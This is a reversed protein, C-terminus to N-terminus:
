VPRVQSLLWTIGEKTKETARASSSLMPFISSAAHPLGPFVDLKTPVGCEERLQHEYILGEDRLPDMGCLQLYTPPQRKHGSPWLLPSSLPSKLDPNYHKHFFDMTERPLILAGKFEEESTYYPRLEQPVVDRHVLVPVQLLVGTIPPSLGEDVAVHAAVAALNGGASEGSVIFGKTLDAGISKGNEAVWKVSDIADHVPTPFPFEPALRYDLSVVVLGIEKTAWVVYKEFAEPPGFVFGGGHFFIIVPGLEGSQMSAESRYTLARISSGDRAPIMVGEKHVGSLDPLSIIGAAILKGVNEMIGSRLAPVDPYEHIRKSPPMRPLIAELEPDIKGYAKWSAPDM